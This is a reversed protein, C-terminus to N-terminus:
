VLQSPRITKKISSPPFLSKRCNSLPFSSIPFRTYHSELGFDFTGSTFTVRLRSHNVFKVSVNEWVIDQFSTWGLGPSNFTQEALVSDDSADYMTLKFKKSANASAVRVTVDVYDLVTLAEYEVFEEPATWGIFCNAGRAKCIADDITKADVLGGGCDDVDENDLEQYASFELAPVHFPVRFEPGGGGIGAPVVSLSCMNVNGTEFTVTVKDPIGPNLAVNRWAMDQFEHWGDNPAQFEVYNFEGGPVDGVGLSFTQTSRAGSAVRVIIDVYTHESIFDYEVWEGAQTWGITCLAGRDYCITDGSPKSDVPQHDEYHPCSGTYGPSLEKYNTFDLAPATFPITYYSLPSAETISVSCLNAMGTLFTVRLHELSGTQPISVNEWVFDEFEQWGNDPVMFEMEEGALSLKIMKNAANSAVRVRINVEDYDNSVFAYEVWEGPETWGINCEAGDRVGCTTDDTYQSDVTQDGCNGAHYPDTEYTDTYQLAPATFPVTQINRCCIEQYDQILSWCEDNSYFPAQDEGYSCEEQLDFGVYENSVVLDHFPCVSCDGFGEPPAATPCGCFFDANSADLQDCENSDFETKAIDDLVDCGYYEEVTGDSRTITVSKPDSGYDTGLNFIPPTSGDPCLSCTGKVNVANQSVVLQLLVLALKRNIQM